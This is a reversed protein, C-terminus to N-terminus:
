EVGGSVIIAGGSEFPSWFFASEFDVIRVIVSEGPALPHGVATRAFRPATSLDYDGFRLPLDGDNTVLVLRGGPWTAPLRLDGRLRYTLDLLNGRSWTYLRTM